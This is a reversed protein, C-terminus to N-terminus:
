WWIVDLFYADNYTISAEQEIENWFFYVLSVNQFYVRERKKLLSLWKSYTVHTCGSNDTTKIKVEVYRIGLYRSNKYPDLHTQSLLTQSYIEIKPLFKIKLIICWLISM